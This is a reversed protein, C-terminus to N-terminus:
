KQKLNKIYDLVRKDGWKATGRIRGIEESKENILVTHPSSFIGFDSALKGKKDTYFEVDPAGYKTLFLRQETSSTWESSPSILILRINEPLANNYFTNLDRLEKICPGCTKSWFVAVVFQGKFDSLRYSKGDEHTIQRGPAERSQAFINVADRKAQVQFSFVILFVFSIIKIFRNM